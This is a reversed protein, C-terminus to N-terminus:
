YKKLKRHDLDWVKATATVIVLDLYINGVKALLFLFHLQRKVNALYM